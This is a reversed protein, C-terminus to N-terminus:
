NNIKFDFSKAKPADDASSSTWYLGAGADVASVVSDGDRYGAPPLCILGAAEATVWEDQSYVKKDKDFSYGNSCIDPAIVLCHEVDCVKVDETYLNEANTRSELIYEWEGASLTRFKGTVGNVTFDSKPTTEADNTFFVDGVAASPDNYNQGRSIQDDKSWFFLNIHNEANWSSLYQATEFEFFDGDWFLNGKSFHVKKTASVSFVGPLAGAPIVPAFTPTWNFTYINSRAIEAAKTTTKEFVKGDTDTVTMKMGATYTCPPLYIYFNTSYTASLQVGEGCDLTVTYGEKVGDFGFSTADYFEITGCLQEKATVAISKVKDTGKLSLCLVGCFNKFELSETSSIACMPANFKGAAYTQTAPLTAQTGVMISAPYVATYDPTPDSGSVKTFIAKTADSADPTASFIAGNINIQDGEVWNVKNESTITTRIFDQSIVASFVKGDGTNTNEGQQKKACSSVLLLQSAAAFAAFIINKKM